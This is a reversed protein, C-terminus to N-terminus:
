FVSILYLDGQQRGGGGGDWDKKVREILRGEEKYREFQFCVCHQTLRNLLKPLNSFMVYM